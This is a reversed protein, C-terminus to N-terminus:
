IAVIITTPDKESAMITYDNEDLHYFNYIKTPLMVVHKNQESIVRVQTKAIAKEELTKLPKAAIVLHEADVAYLIMGEPLKEGGTVKEDVEIRSEVLRQVAKGKM